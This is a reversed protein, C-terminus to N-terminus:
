DRPSPSTYLLCGGTYGGGGGGENGSNGGGGGFGGASDTNVNVANLYTTNSFWIGGPSDSGHLSFGPRGGLPGLANSPKLGGTQGRVNSSWLNMNTTTYRCLSDKTFPVPYWGNSRNTYNYNNVYETDEYRYWYNPAYKVDIRPNDNTTKWYPVAYPAALNPNPNYGGGAGSWHHFSRSGGDDSWGSGGGSNAQHNGGYYGGSGSPAYLMGPQSDKWTNSSTSVSGDDNFTGGDSVIDYNWSASNSSPNWSVGWAGGGGGGVGLLTSFDESCVWSAGGGGSGGGNSYSPTFDQGSQGVIINIKDGETLDFNGETYAGQGPPGDSQTRLGVEGGRAGSIKIKYTGSVPVTWLQVGNTVNFYSLTNYWSGTTSSSTYSSKCNSLTPGERDTATCNTFTHSDNVNFSYLPM